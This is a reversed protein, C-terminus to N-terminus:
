VSHNQVWGNMKVRAIDSFQDKLDTGQNVFPMSLREKRFSQVMMFVLMFGMASPPNKVPPFAAPLSVYRIMRTNFTSGSPTQTAKM